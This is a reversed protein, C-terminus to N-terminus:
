GNDGRYRNAALVGARDGGDVQITGQFSSWRAPRQYRRGERRGRARGAVVCYLSARPCTDKALTGSINYFMCINLDFYLQELARHAPM